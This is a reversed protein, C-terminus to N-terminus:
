KRQIIMVVHEEEEEDFADNDFCEATDQFAGDACLVLQVTETICHIFM